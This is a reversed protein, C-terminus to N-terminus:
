AARRDRAGETDLCDDRREGFGSTRTHALMRFEVSQTVLQSKHIGHACRRRAGSDCVTIVERRSYDVLEPPPRIGERPGAIMESVRWCAVVGPQAIEVTIVSRLLM